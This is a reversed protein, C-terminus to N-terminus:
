RESRRAVLLLSGLRNAEAPREEREVVVLGAARVEAILDAPRPSYVPVATRGFVRTAPDFGHDASGAPPDGCDHTLAYLGGRRLTAALRAFYRGRDAAGTIWHLCNRDVVADASGGDFSEDSLLDGRVFRASVGADAARRTAWAIANVALDVGTVRHGRLALAVCLRGDGCGFEVVDCARSGLHGLHGAIRTALADFDEDPSWGDWGLGRRREYERDVLDGIRSM